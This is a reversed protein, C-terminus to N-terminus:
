ENNKFMNWHIDDLLEASKLAARFHLFYNSFMGANPKDLCGSRMWILMYEAFLYICHWLFLRVRTTNKYMISKKNQHGYFPWSETGNIIRMVDYEWNLFCCSIVFWLVFFLIPLYLLLQFLGSINDVAGGVRRQGAWVRARFEVICWNTDAIFFLRIFMRNKFLAEM